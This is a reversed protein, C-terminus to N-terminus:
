SFREVWRLHGRVADLETAYREFYDVNGGVLLATEFILGDGVDLGTWITSVTCSDLKSVAVRNSPETAFQDLTIENGDRDVYRM